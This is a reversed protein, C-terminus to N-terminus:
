KLKSLLDYSNINLKSFAFCKLALDKLSAGFHYVENDDLVIFRDHFNKTERLEIPPYQSNHKQLDLLIAKNINKTYIVAKVGKKRKTLLKFARDDIYNDIIVISKKAKRILDSAFAYADFIQGEFFV